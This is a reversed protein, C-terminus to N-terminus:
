TIAVRLGGYEGHGGRRGQGREILLEPEQGRGYGTPLAVGGTYLAADSGLYVEEVRIIHGVLFCHVLRFRREVVLPVNGALILYSEAKIDM